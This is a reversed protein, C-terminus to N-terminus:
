KIGGLEAHEDCMWVCLPVNEVLIQRMPAPDPNDCGVAQCTKVQEYDIACDVHLPSMADGEWPQFPKEGENILDVLKRVLPEIQTMLEDGKSSGLSTIGLLQEGTAFYEEPSNAYNSCIVVRGGWKEVRFALERLKTEM